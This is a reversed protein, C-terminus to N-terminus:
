LLDRYGHKKEKIRNNSAAKRIKLTKMILLLFFNKM